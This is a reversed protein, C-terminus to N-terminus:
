LKLVLLVLPNYENHITSYMILIYLVFNPLGEYNITYFLYLIVLLIHMFPHIYFCIVNAIIKNIKM